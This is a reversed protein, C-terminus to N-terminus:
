SNQQRSYEYIAISAANSVNLSETQGYQQIKIAEIQDRDRVGELNPGFEEHGIIFASKTPYNKQYVYDKADVDLSFIKYGEEKLIDLSENLTAFRKIPVRKLAGKAPYPDFFKTGVVHVEKISFVEASRLIKGINFGAKLHDLILVLEFKGPRATFKNISMEYEFKKQIRKKSRRGM